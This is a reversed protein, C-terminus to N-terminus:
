VGKRPRGRPSLASELKHIVAARHTWEKEGYPRGRRVADHIAELIETHSKRNLIALWDPPRPLPWDSLTCPRASADHARQWASSWPWEEARRVLGARRANAEVYRCLQFLHGDQQVPLSKFRGQYLHGTGVLDRCTQYRQTHTQVLWGAFQSLEGDRSPWVVLHWHNPMICYSLIRMGTRVRAEELVTLFAEYDAASAFIRMRRNARNLVHYVVGGFTSRLPRPM